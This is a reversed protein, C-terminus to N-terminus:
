HHLLTDRIRYIISEDVNIDFKRAFLEDSEMLMDFDELKFTYPNGRRWDICRLSDDKVKDLFPSNILITQLLFEDACKTNCFYKKLKNYENLIYCATDHTISFWTSGKLFM